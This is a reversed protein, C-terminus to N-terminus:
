LEDGTILRDVLARGVAGVREDPVADYRAARDRAAKQIEAVRREREATLAAESRRADAELEGSLTAARNRAATRAAEVIAKADDRARQLLDENRRETEILRELEM